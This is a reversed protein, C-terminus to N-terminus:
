RARLAATQTVQRLFSMERQRASLLRRQLERDGPDRELATRIETIADEIIKMNLDVTRRTAPALAGRREQLAARMQQRAELFAIEAVELGAPTGAVPVVAGDVLDPASVDSGPARGAAGGGPGQLTGPGLGLWLGLAAVILISAAAAAMRWDLFPALAPFRFRRAAPPEIRRAIGQWLDRSPAVSEPLRTAAALLSRIAQEEDRCEGCSRLHLAVVAEEGPPLGGDVFEDLRSRVDDCTM